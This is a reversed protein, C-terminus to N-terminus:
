WNRGSIEPFTRTVLDYTMLFILKESEHPSIQLFLHADDIIKDRKDAGGQPPASTTAKFEIRSETRM